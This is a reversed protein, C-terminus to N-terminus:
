AFRGRKSGGQNEKGSGFNSIDFFDPFQVKRKTASNFTFDRNSQRTLNRSNSHRPTPRGGRHNLVEVRVPVTPSSSSSEIQPSQHGDDTQMASESQTDSNGTFHYMPPRSTSNPDEETPESTPHSEPPPRGSINEPEPSSNRPRSEEASDEENESEQHYSGDYRETAWQRVRWGEGDQLGLNERDLFKLLDDLADQYGSQRSSAQDAAASKYLNTVSLAATRFAQLLQEPPPPKNPQSSPLSSNLSRM